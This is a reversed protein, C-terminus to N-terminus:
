TRQELLAVYANTFVDNAFLFYPVPMWVRWRDLRRAASRAKRGGYHIRRFLTALSAGRVSAEGTRQDSM